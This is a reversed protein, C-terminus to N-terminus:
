APRWLLNRGDYGLIVFKYLAAKAFYTPMPCWRNKPCSKIQPLIAKYREFLKEKPLSPNWLSDPFITNAVTNCDYEENRALSENLKRRIESDEFPVSKEFGTVEIILPAVEKQEVTLLFAKAWALSLYSESIFNNKM